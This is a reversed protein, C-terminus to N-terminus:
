GHRQGLHQQPAPPRHALQHEGPTIRAFCRQVGPNWPSTSRNRVLKGKAQEIIIRSNLAAPAARRHNAQACTGSRCCDITAGRTRGPGSRRASRSARFPHGVQGSFTLAGISRRRPPAHASGRCHPFGAQVALRPSSPGDSVRSRPPLDRPHRAPRARLLWAHDRTMQIHFCSM